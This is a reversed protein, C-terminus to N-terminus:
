RRLQVILRVNEEAGPAVWRRVSHSREKHLM